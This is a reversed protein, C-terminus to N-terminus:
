PVFVLRFGLLNDGKGPNWSIRRAVRCDFANGYWNGGRYVRISGISPGQPNNLQSSKYYDSGYRDSCWEWVNGSMDYIGLENAQKTGVKHTKSNSNKTHWAVNDIDNSGSYKYEKSKNGGRAVYEWEAETPLRYNQGTKKNLKQIFEQVNNWSVNEVPRDDLKFHSPNSGMIEKWQYQTVEYKGVFFDDVCVKHVPKENYYGNNSGMNFCGGKVFVM